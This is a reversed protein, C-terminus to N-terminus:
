IHKKRYNLSKSIAAIFSKM